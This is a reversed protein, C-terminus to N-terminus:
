GGISERIKRVLKIAYAGPLQAVFGYILAVFAVVWPDSVRWVLAVAGAIGILAGVLAAQNQPVGLIQNQPGRFKLRVGKHTMALLIIPTNNVEVSYLYALRIVQGRNMVPIVYERQANYIARQNESPSAGDEVHLQKKYTDSWNLANPTDLIQTKESLLRNRSDPTYVRVVVNEYDNMSENKLDIVSLYLNPFRTANWTVVVSGFVADEDSLGVRNHNVFYTFTGRKSLIRQTFWATIVGGIGGAIAPVYQTQIIELINM